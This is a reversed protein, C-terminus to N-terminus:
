IRLFLKRQYMWLLILWFAFLVATEIAQGLVIGLVGALVLRKLKDPLTRDSRLLQGAILGFIM